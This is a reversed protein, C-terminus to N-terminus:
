SLWPEAITGDIWNMPDPVMDVTWRAEYGDPYISTPQATACLCCALAALLAPIKKMIRLLLHFDTIM